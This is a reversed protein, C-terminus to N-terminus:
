AHRGGTVETVTATVYSSLPSALFLAVAAVESPRGIRGLPIEKLKAERIDERMNETMPTLILGPQIANVRVQHPALEKASAKTLGVIGAKAASYNTQGVLGVKGSISSMNVIAGSRQERMMAGAAKTMLWTGTLNVELVARFDDLTMKRMTADRIIGANNVVVDLAGFTDLCTQVVKSVDSENAVDAGVGNAVGGAATITNAASQADDESLDVILVRAGHRAFVTAIELGIGRAAGTVVAARGALLPATTWQELRDPESLLTEATM